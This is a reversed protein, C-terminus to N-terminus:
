SVNDNTLSGVILPSVFGAVDIVLGCIGLLISAYNPSLDVLNSLPGSSVAGASAIGGMILIVALVPYCGSFALGLVLVSPIGSCVFTALKRM